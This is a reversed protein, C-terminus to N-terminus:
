APQGSDRSNRRHAASRSPGAGPLRSGWWALVEDDGGYARNMVTAIELLRGHAAATADGITSEVMATAEAWAAGDSPLPVVAIDRAALRIAGSSLGTGARRAVAWASIPPALLVAAIRALDADDAEVSLVPTLPVLTGDADIVPELVRTQNPLLIKPRLRDNCWRQVRESTRALVTLDLAPRKWSRKAIRAERTGWHLALPDLLGSTVVRPAPELGDVTAAAIAYYEDRFGATVRALDGLTGTGRRAPQGAWESALLPAWSVAEALHTSTLTPGPSVSFDAGRRRRIPADAAAALQVVPVCTRVGADFAEGDDEWLEVISGRDLVFGRVSAADAASLLSQPQVLAVRGGVRALSVARALFLAATDCYPSVGLGLTAAVDAGYDATRTTTSRMQGLFPPNGVVADFGDPPRDPWPDGVLPDAVVLRALPGVTAGAAAAWCVLAAEAVAVAVSDIDSGWLRVEVAEGVTAGTATLRRAAALLFAGGGMAPDLVSAKAAGVASEVVGDALWRPTYHVGGVRRDDASLLNQYLLGLEDGDAVVVPPDAGIHHAALRLEPWSCAGVTEALRAAVASVAEAPALEENVAWQVLEGVRPVRHAAPINV